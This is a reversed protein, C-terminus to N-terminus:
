GLGLKANLLGDYDLEMLEDCGGIHEDNIFIQPVSTKGGARKIMQDRLVPKMMVGYEEYNVGKRDLLQKAHSCYGCFPSTYIEVIPNSPAVDTESTAKNADMPDYTM